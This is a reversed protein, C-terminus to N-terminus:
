FAVACSMLTIGVRGLQTQGQVAPLIARILSGDGTASLDSSRGAFCGLVVVKVVLLGTLCFLLVLGCYPLLVDFISGFVLKPNLARVSGFLAIALFLMPFFFIGAASLLWFSINTRGTLVFYIAAPCFCLVCCFITYGLQASLDEADFRAQPSNIDPARHGGAASDRICVSLYYLLYGVGIVLVVAGLIQSSSYSRSWFEVRCASLLLTPLFAFIVLHIAGSISIPYLIVGVFWPQKRTQKQESASDQECLITVASGCRHCIGTQGAQNEPANM